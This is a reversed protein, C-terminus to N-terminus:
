EHSDVEHIKNMIIRCGEGYGSLSIEQTKKDWTILGKKQLDQIIRAAQDDEYSM